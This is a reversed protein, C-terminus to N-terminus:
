VSHLSIGHLKATLFNATHFVVRKGMYERTLEVSVTHAGSAGNWRPVRSPFVRQMDQLHKARYPTANCLRMAPVFLCRWVLWPHPLPSPLLRPRSYHKSAPRASYISRNYM